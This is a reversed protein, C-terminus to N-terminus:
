LAAVIGFDVGTATGGDGMMVVKTIGNTGFRFQLPPAGPALGFTDPNSVNHLGYAYIKLGNSSGSRVSVQFTTCPFGADAQGTANNFVTTPTTTISQNAGATM